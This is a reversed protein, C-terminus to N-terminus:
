PLVFHLRYYAHGFASPDRCNGAPEYWTWVAGHDVPSATWSDWPTLDYCAVPTMWATHDFDREQWGEPVVNAQVRWSGDGTMHQVTGDISVSSLHGSIAAGIDWGHIAIVHPGSDLSFSFEDLVNWGHHEGAFSADDIWGEWADDVTIALVVDHLIEVCDAIGDGDSDPFGEDIEGDGDNDEGDCIEEPPPDGTDEHGSDEPPPDGTDEGESDEPAPAKGSDEVSGPAEARGKLTYDPCGVLPLILLPTWRHM